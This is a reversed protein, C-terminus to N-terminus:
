NEEPTDAPPTYDSGSPTYDQTDSQKKMMQEVAKKQEENIIPAGMMGGPEGEKVPSPVSISVGDYSFTSTSTNGDKDTIEEKRMLYERDDFWIYNTSGEDGSSIIQYKFCNLNGCAEKGLAKYETKDMMQKKDDFTDKIKSDSEIPTITPDKKYTQKFWKNDTLDKTYTSDGITITNMMEKGGQSSMMHTKDEGVMEFRSEISEGGYKASSVMSYNKLEKFNNFFKCLDPDKYECNPNLARGMMGSLPNSVGVGKQSMFYFGGGALLLVAIIVLVISKSIGKIQFTSRSHTSKKSAAKKIVKKRKV